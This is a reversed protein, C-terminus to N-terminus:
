GFPAALRQLQHAGGARVYQQDVESHRFHIAHFQHALRPFEVRFEGDDQDSGKRVYAARHLRNAGAGMVIQALGEVMVFDDAHHEAGQLFPPHFRLQPFQCPVDIRKRQFFDETRALGNTFDDRGDLTDRFQIEADDDLALGTGPFFDDGLGDM